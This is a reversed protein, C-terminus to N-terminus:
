SHHPQKSVVCASQSGGPVTVAPGRARMGGAPVVPPEVVVAAKRREFRQLAEEMDGPKVADPLQEPRPQRKLRERPPEPMHSYLDLLQQLRCLANPWPSQPRQLASACAPQHALPHFCQMLLSASGHGPLRAAPAWRNADVLLPSVAVASAAAQQQHSPGPANSGPAPPLLPDEV